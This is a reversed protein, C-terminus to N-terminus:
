FSNASPVAPSFGAWPPHCCSRRLLQTHLHRRPSTLPHQGIHAQSCLPVWGPFGCCCFAVSCWRHKGPEKLLWCTSEPRWAPPLAQLCSLAGQSGWPSLPAAPLPARRGWFADKGPLQQEEQSGQLVAAVCFLKMLLLVHFCAPCAQQWCCFWHRYPHPLARMRWIAKM